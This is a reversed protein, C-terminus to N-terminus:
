FGLRDRLSALVSRAKLHASVALRTCVYTGVVVELHQFYQYIDSRPNPDLREFSGLEIVALPEM